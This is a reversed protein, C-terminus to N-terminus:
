SETGTEASRYQLMYDSNGITYYVVQDESPYVMGLEESAAKKIEIFNIGAAIRKERVDNDSKLTEIQSQLSAINGSRRYAESQASIYGACVMAFLVLFLSYILVKRPNLRRTKELNRAVSRATEKRWAEYKREEVVYAPIKVPQAVVRDGNQVLKYYRGKSNEDYAFEPEM